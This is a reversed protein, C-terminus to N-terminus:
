GAPEVKLKLKDAWGWSTNILMKVTGGEPEAKNPLVPSFAQSLHGATQTSAGPQVPAEAGACSSNSWVGGVCDCPCAKRFLLNHPSVASLSCVGQHLVKETDMKGTHGDM